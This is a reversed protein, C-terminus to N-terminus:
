KSLHRVNNSISRAVLEVQEQSLDIDDMLFVTFALYMVIIRFDNSHMDKKVDGLDLPLSFHAPAGSRFYVHKDILISSDVTVGDIGIVLKDETVSISIHSDTNGVGYHILAINDVTLDKSQKFNIDSIQSRLSSYKLYNFLGQKYGKHVWYFMLTALVSGRYKDEVLNLNLLLDLCYDEGFEVISTHRTYNVYNINM